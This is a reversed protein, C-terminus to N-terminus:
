ICFIITQPSFFLDFLFIIIGTTISSDVSHGWLTVSNKRKQKIITWFPVKQTFTGLTDWKELKKKNFFTPCKRTLLQIVNNFSNVYMLNVIYINTLKFRNKYLMHGGFSFM